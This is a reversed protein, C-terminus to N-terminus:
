GLIWGKWGELLVLLVLDWLRVIRKFWVVIRVLCYWLCVGNVVWELCFDKVFVEFEGGEDGLFLFFIKEINFRFLVGDFFFDNFEVFFLWGDDLINLLLCLFMELLIDFLERWVGFMVEFLFGWECMKDMDWFLKRFFINLSLLLVFDEFLFCCKNLVIILKMGGMDINLDLCVICCM